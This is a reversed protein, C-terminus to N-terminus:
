NNLNPNRDIHGHTRSSHTHRYRHVRYSGTHRSILLVLVLVFFQHMIIIVFLVHVLYVMCLKRLLRDTSVTGVPSCSSNKHTLMQLTDDLVVQRIPIMLIVVTNGCYSLFMFRSYPGYRGFTDPVCHGSGTIGVAGATTATVKFRTTTPDPCDLTEPNKAGLFDVAAGAAGTGASGVTVTPKFSVGGTCYSRM